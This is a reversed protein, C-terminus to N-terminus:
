QVKIHNEGEAGLARGDTFGPSNAEEINKSPMWREGEVTVVGAPPPKRSCRHYKM